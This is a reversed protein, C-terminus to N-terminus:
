KSDKRRGLYRAAERERYVRAPNARGRLMRQFGKDHSARMRLALKSSSGGRIMGRAKEIRVVLDRAKRVAASTAQYSRYSRHLGLRRIRNRQGKPSRDRLSTLDGNRRNYNASQLIPRSAGRPRGGGLPARMTNLSVGGTRYYPRMLERKGARLEKDSANQMRIIRRQRQSVRRVSGDAFRMRAKEIGDSEKLPQAHLKIM